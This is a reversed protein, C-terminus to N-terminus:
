GTHVCNAWVVGYQAPLALGAQGIGTGNMVQDRVTLCFSEPTLGDIREIFPPFFSQPPNITPNTSPFSVIFLTWTEAVASSALALSIASSLLFKRM